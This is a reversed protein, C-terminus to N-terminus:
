HSLNSKILGSPHSEKQHTNHFCKQFQFTMERIFVRRFFIRPNQFEDLKERHFLRFKALVITKAYISFVSLFFMKLYFCYEYRHIVLNPVFTQEYFTDVSVSLLCRILSEQLFRFGTRTQNKINVFEMHQKSSLNQVSKCNTFLKWLKNILTKKDSACRSSISTSKSFLIRIERLFTRSPFVIQNSM